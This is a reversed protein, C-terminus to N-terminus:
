ARRDCLRHSPADRTSAHGATRGRWGRPGTPILRLGRSCQSGRSQRRRLCKITPGRLPRVSLTPSYGRIRQVSVSSTCGSIIPRASDTPGCGGFLRVLFASLRGKVCAHRTRHEVASLLIARFGVAHCVRSSHLRITRVPRCVCRRRQPTSPPFRHRSGRPIRARFRRRRSLRISPDRGARSLESQTARHHNRNRNTVASGGLSTFPSADM